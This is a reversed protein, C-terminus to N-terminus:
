ERIQFSKIMKLANMGDAYYGPIIGAPLYGFKEYLAIGRRNDVRVELAISLCGRKSAGSECAELLSSGLGQGHYIPDIVISYLRALASNKRWLMIAAGAVKKDFELIYVTTNAKTLLYKVQRPSFRDEGFGSEELYLLARLDHLAASRIRLHNNPRKKRSRKETMIRDAPRM